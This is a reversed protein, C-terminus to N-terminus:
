LKTVREMSGRYKANKVMIVLTYMKLAYMIDQDYRQVSRIHQKVQKKRKIEKM